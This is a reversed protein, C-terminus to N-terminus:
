GYELNERRTKADHHIKCLSQWNTQDWFLVEDGRHPIIHDVVQALVDYSNKKCDVCLPNESLHELRQTVWYRNNYLKKHELTRASKRWTKSGGHKKCRADYCLEGCGPM